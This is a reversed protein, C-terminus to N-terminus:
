CSVLRGSMLGSICDPDYEICFLPRLMFRELSDIINVALLYEAINMFATEPSGIGSFATSLTLACLCNAVSTYSSEQDPMAMDFVLRSVCYPIWTQFARKVSTVTPPRDESNLVSPSERRRRKNNRMMASHEFSPALM